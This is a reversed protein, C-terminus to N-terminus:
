LRVNEEGKKNIIEFLFNHLDFYGCNMGVVYADANFEFVGYLAHRYSGKDIVDAQYIRKCVAYFSKLKDDYSLKNWYEEAEKDYIEKAERFADQIEQLTKEKM